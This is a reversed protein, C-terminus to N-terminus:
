KFHSSIVWNPTQVMCDIFIFTKFQNECINNKSWFINNGITSPYKLKPTTM